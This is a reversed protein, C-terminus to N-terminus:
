EEEVEQICTLPIEKTGTVVTGDHQKLRWGTIYHDYEKVNEYVVGNAECTIKRENCATLTLVLILAAIILLLKKM